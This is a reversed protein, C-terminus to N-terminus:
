QAVDGWGDAESEARRIGETGGRLHNSMLCLAHVRWGTTHCTERLTELFWERDADVLLILERRDDRNMLHDIGGEFEVRLKRPM